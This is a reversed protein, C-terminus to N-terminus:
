MDHSSVPQATCDRVSQATDPPPLFEEGGVSHHLLQLLIFQALHRDRREWHFLSPHSSLDGQLGRLEM